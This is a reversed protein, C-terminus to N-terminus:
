DFHLYKKPGSLLVTWTNSCLSGSSLAPGTLRKGSLPRPNEPAEALPRQLFWRNGPHGVGWRGWWQKYISTMPAFTARITVADAGKRRQQDKEREM